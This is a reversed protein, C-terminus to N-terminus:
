KIERKVAEYPTEQDKINGGPFAWKGLSSNSNSRIMILNKGQNRIIGLAVEGKYEM